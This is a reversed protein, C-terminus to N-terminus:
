RKKFSWFRTRCFISRDDQQDVLPPFHGEKHPYANLEHPSWGVLTQLILVQLGCLSVTWILM